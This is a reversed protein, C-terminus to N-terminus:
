LSVLVPVTCKGTCGPPPQRDGVLPSTSLELVAADAPNYQRGPDGRDHERCEQDNPAQEFFVGANQRWEQHEKLIKGVFESGSRTAVACGEPGQCETLEEVDLEKK